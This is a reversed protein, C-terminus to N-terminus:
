GGKLVELIDSKLQDLGIGSLFPVGSFVPVGLDDPVPTMAIIVDPPFTQMKFKIEAVRQFYTLVSGNTCERRDVAGYIDEVPVFRSAQIVERRCIEIARQRITNLMAPQDEITVGAADLLTPYLDSTVAPISSARNGDFRAPWELMAPVRLGGEYLKERGLEEELLRRCHEAYYPALQFFDASQGVIDLEQEQAKKIDLVDETSENWPLATLWDLYTTAVTYEASSPHM